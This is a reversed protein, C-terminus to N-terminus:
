VAVGSVRAGDGDAEVAIADIGPRAGVVPEACTVGPDWRVVNTLDALYAFAVGLALPTRVRLVFEAM